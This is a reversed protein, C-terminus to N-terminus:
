GGSLPGGDWRDLTWAGAESRVLQFQWRPKGPPAEIWVEARRGTLASTGPKRYDLEWANTGTKLWTEAAQQYQEATIRSRRADSLMQYARGFQHQRLLSLYGACVATPGATEMTVKPAAPPPPGPTQSFFGVAGWLLGAVLVVAGARLFSQHDESLTRPPERRARELAEVLSPGLRLAFEETAKLATHPFAGPKFTHDVYLVGAPESVGPIPVCLVSRVEGHRPCTAFTVDQTADMTHVSKGQERARTVAFSPVSTPDGLDAAQVGHLFRVSPTGVEQTLVVVRETGELKRLFEVAGAILTGVSPGETAVVASM